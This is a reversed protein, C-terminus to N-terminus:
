LTVESLKELIECLVSTLTVPRYNEAIQKRGKQFIPFIHGLKCDEPIVDQVLTINFLIAIPQYINNSIEKLM